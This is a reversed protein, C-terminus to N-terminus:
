FQFRYLIDPLFGVQRIPLVQQADPIYAYYLRNERNLMNMADIYIYHSTQRKTNFQFGAKFDWRFYNPSRQTNINTQEWVTERQAISAQVDIPTFTQGGAWTITTSLFCLHNKNRGIKFEHGVRLRSIFRRDFAANYWKKDSASYKVRFWAGSLEMYFGKHFNKKLSIDGGYNLAEGAGALKGKPLQESLNSYSNYLSYSSSSDAHIPVNFWYRGLASTKVQWFESIRFTYELLGYHNGWLPLNQASQDYAYGGAQTEDLRGSRHFQVRQSIQQHQLCYGFSLRNWINFDYNVSLRPEFAFKRNLSYYLLNWGAQISLKFTPRYQM